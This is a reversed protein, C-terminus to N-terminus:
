IDTQPQDSLSRPAPHFFGRLFILTQLVRRTTFVNRTRRRHTHTNSHVRVIYILRSARRSFFARKAFSFGNSGKQRGHPPLVISRIGSCQLPPSSYIPFFGFIFLPRIDYIYQAHHAHRIDPRLPTRPDHASTM